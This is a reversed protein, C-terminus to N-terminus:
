NTKTECLVGGGGGAQGGGGGCWAQHTRQQRRREVRALQRWWALGSGGSSRGRWGAGDLGIVESQAVKSAESSQAVTRM